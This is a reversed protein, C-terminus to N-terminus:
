YIVDRKFEEYSCTYSFNYPRVVLRIYKVYIQQELVRKKYYPYRGM